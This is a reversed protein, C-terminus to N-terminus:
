RDHPHLPYTQTRNHLQRGDFSVSWQLKVKGVNAHFPIPAGIITSTLALSVVLLWLFSPRLLMPPLAALCLASKRTQTANHRRDPSSIVDLTSDSPRSFHASRGARSLSESDPLHTSSHTSSALMREPLLAGRKYAPHQKDVASAASCVTRATSPSPCLVLSSLIVGAIM